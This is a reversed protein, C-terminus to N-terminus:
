DNADAEGYVRIAAKTVRTEYDDAFQWILNGEDRVLGREDPSLDSRLCLLMDSLTSGSYRHHSHEVPDGNPQSDVNILTVNKAKGLWDRDAQTLTDERVSGIRTARYLVYKAWRLATDNKSTYVALRDFMGRLDEKLIRERAVDTSIDPAVLLVDGIKWKQNRQQPTLNHSMLGLERLVTGAVEAGSSHAILNIKTASLRGATIENAIM